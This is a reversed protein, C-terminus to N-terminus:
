AGAVADRPQQSELYRHAQESNLRSLMDLHEDDISTFTGMLVYDYQHDKSPQVAGVRFTLLEGMQIAPSQGFCVRRSMHRQREMLNLPVPKGPAGSDLSWRRIERMRAMVRQGNVSLLQGQYEADGDWLWFAENGSGRKSM